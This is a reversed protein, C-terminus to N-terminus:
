STTKLQALLARLMQTYRQDAASFGKMYEDESLNQRKWDGDFTTRKGKAEFSDAGHNAEPRAKLGDISLDEVFEKAQGAGNLEIYIDKFEKKALRADLLQPASYQASITLLEIGPLYLAAIYVGPNGPDKAAVSELRAANLAVALEKALPASATEQAVIAMSCLVAVLGAGSVLAVAKM